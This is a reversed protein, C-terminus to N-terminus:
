TFDYTDKQTYAIIIEIQILRQENIQGSIEHKIENLNGAKETDTFPISTLPDLDLIKIDPLDTKPEATPDL